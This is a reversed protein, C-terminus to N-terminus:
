LRTHSVKLGQKSSQTQLLSLSVCTCSLSLDTPTIGCRLSGAGRLQLSSGPHHRCGGWSGGKGGKAGSCGRAPCQCCLVCTLTIGCPRSWNQQQRTLWVADASCRSLERFVLSWVGAPPHPYTEAPPLGAVMACYYPHSKNPPLGRASAFLALHLPTRATPSPLPQPLTPQIHSRIRPSPWPLAAPLLCEARFQGGAAQSGARM